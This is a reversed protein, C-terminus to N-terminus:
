GEYNIFVTNDKVKTEYSGVGIVAPFSKVAGDRIDFEAGHLACKVHNGVVKGETLSAEAHSCTDDIAFYGDDTRFLALKHGTDMVVQKSEGVSLEDAPAAAIWGM